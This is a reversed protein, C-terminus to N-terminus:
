RPAGHCRRCLQGDDVPLRMQLTGKTAFKGVPSKDEASAALTAWRSFVGQRVAAPLGSAPPLWGHTLWDESAVKPDHFLHCTGCYVGGDETLPVDPSGKPASALAGKVAAPDARLHEDAGAHLTRAHCLTCTELKSRQLSFDANHCVACMTTDLEGNAKTMHHPSSDGEACAAPPLVLLWVVLLATATRIV